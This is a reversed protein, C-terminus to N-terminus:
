EKPVSERFKGHRAIHAIRGGSFNTRDAEELVIDLRDDFGFHALKEPWEIVLAGGALAEDLGLERAESPDDLRYLDLHLLTFGPTDYGQILTFTPSPVDQDPTTLARILGRALTSKGMGLEGHLYVVDGAQLIPAVLAGLTATANDDPLYLTQPVSLDLAAIDYPTKM